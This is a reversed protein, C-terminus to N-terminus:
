AWIWRLDKTFYFISYTSSLVPGFTQNKGLKCINELLFLVNYKNIHKLLYDYLWESRYMHGSEILSWKVTTVM